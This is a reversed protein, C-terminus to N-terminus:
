VGFTVTGDFNKLQKIKNRIGLEIMDIFKKGVMNQTIATNVLQNYDVGVINFVEHKVLNNDADFYNLNVQISNPRIRLSYATVKVARLTIDLPTVLNIDGM